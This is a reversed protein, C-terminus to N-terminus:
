TWSPGRSDGYQKETIIIGGNGNIDQTGCICKEKEDVHWKGGSKNKSPRPCASSSPSPRAPSPTPRPTPTPFLRVHPPSPFITIRRRSRRIWTQHPHLSLPPRRRPLPRHPRQAALHDDASEAPHLGPHRHPRPRALDHLQPRRHLRRARCAPTPKPASRRPRRSSCIPSRRARTSPPSHPELPVRETAADIPSASHSLRVIEVIFACAPTAALFPAKIRHPHLATLLYLLNPRYVVSLSCRSISLPSAFRICVAVFSRVERRVAPTSPAEPGNQASEPLFM